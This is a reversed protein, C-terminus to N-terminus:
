TFIGLMYSITGNAATDCRTFSITTATATWSLQVDLFGSAAGVTSDNALVFDPAAGLGHAVTIVADGTTATSVGIIVKKYNLLEFAKEANQAGKSYPGPM